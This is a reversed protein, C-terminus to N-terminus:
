TTISVKLLTGFALDNVFTNEPANHLPSWTNQPQDLMFINPGSGYNGAYITGKTDTALATIFHPIQNGYNHWADIQYSKISNEENDIGALLLGQSNLILTDVLDYNAGPRGITVWGQPDQLNLEYVRGSDTGTYLFNHKSDFAFAVSGLLPTGPTSQWTNGDWVKTYDNTGAYLKTGAFIMSTVDIPGQDGLPHWTTQDKTLVQVGHTATGAYLNGDNDFKLTNTSTPSKIGASAWEAGNWFEIDNTTGVYLNSQADLALAKAKNPSSTGGVVYWTNGDWAVVGADTAAYLYTTANILFKSIHSNDNSGLAALTLTTTELKPTTGITAHLVYTCSHGPSLPQVLSLTNCTSRAPVVILDPLSALNNNFSMIPTQGTNTLTLRVQAPGEQQISSNFSVNSSTPLWSALLSSILVSM